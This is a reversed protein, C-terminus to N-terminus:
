LSPPNPDTAKQGPTIDHSIRTRPTILIAGPRLYSVDHPEPSRTLAHRSWTALADAIDLTTAGQPAPFREDLWPSTLSRRYKRTIMWQDDEKDAFIACEVPYTIRSPFPMLHGLDTEFPTGGFGYTVFHESASIIAPDNTVTAHSPAPLGQLKSKTSM